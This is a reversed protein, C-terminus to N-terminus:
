KVWAVKMRNVEFVACPAGATRLFEGKAVFGGGLVLGEVFLPPVFILGGAVDFFGEDVEQDPVM